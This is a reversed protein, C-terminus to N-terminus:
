LTFMSSIAAKLPFLTQTHVWLYEGHLNTLFFYASITTLFITSNEEMCLAAFTYSTTTTTLGRHHTLSFDSTRNDLSFHMHIVMARAHWWQRFILFLHSTCVDSM